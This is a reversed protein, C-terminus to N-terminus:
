KSKPSPKTESWKKAASAFALKHDYKEGLRVREKAIHEKIFNNYDSPQRPKRPKEKKTPVAANNDLKLKMARVEEELQKIREEETM